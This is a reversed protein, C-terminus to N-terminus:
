KVWLMVHLVVLLSISLYNMFIQYCEKVLSSGLGKQRHNQSFFVRMFRAIRTDWMM